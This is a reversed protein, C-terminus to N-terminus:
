CVPAEHVESVAREGYGGGRRGRQSGPRVKRPGKEGLHGARERAEAPQTTKIDREPYHFLYPNPQVSNSVMAYVGGASMNWKRYEVDKRYATRAQITALEIATKRHNQLNWWLSALLFATWFIAAVAAFVRHKRM